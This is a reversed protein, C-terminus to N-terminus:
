GRDARAVEALLRGIEAGLVHALAQVHEARPRTLGREWASVAAKSVGVLGGLREQSLGARVRAIRIVEGLRLQM